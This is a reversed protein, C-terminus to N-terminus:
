KSLEQLYRSYNLFEEQRELKEQSKRKSYYYAKVLYLNEIVKDPNHIYPYTINEGLTEIEISGYNLLYEIFNKQVKKISQVSTIDAEIRKEKGWLPKKEIDIVKSGEFAYKDNIWDQLQWLTYVITILNIVLLYPVKFVIYGSISIIIFILMPPFTKFLFVTFSKRFKFNGSGKEEMQSEIFFLDNKKCYLNKFSSLDIASNVANRNIRFNEIFILNRGPNFVGSISIDGTATDMILDGINLLKYLRSRFLIKTGVVKDLPSSIHINSGKLINFSKKSVLDSTIEVFTLSKILYRSILICLWFLGGAFYYVNKLDFKSKILLGLLITGIFFIFQNIFLMYISTRIKYSKYRVYDGKNNLSIDFAHKEEETFVERILSILFPAKKYLRRLGLIDVVLLKSDGVSELSSSTISNMMISHFDFSDGELLINENLIKEGDKKRTVFSGELIIIWNQCFEGQLYVNDGNKCNYVSSISQIKQVQPRNLESFYQLVGIDKSNMHKNDDENQKM